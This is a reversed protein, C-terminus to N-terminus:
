ATSWTAVFEFEGDLRRGAHRSHEASDVERGPPAWLTVFEGDKIDVNVRRLVYTRGYGGEYFERSQSTHDHQNRNTVCPPCHNLALPGGRLYIAPPSRWRRWCISIAAVTPMRPKVRLAHPILRTVAFSLPTRGRNRLQGHARGPGSCACCITRSPELAHPHRNM